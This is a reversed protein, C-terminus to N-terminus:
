PRIVEEGSKTIKIIKSPKSNVKGEVYFDIQDGFYAKAESINNASPLGEPNASPAVLPGTQKILNTLEINNPLRFALTNTGRHLYDLDPDPCELIISVPGPWHKDLSEIVTPTVNINFLELDDPSSILVIFPKSPARNKLEYIKRVAPKDLACGVIGYITDTPIIGIGSDKLKRVNKDMRRSYCFFSPVQDREADGMNIKSLNTSGAETPSM